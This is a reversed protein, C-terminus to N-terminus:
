RQTGYTPNPAAAYRIATNYHTVQATGNTTTSASFNDISSNHTVPVLSLPDVSPFTSSYSTRASTSSTNSGGSSSSSASSSRTHTSTSAHHIVTSPMKATAPLPFSSLLLDLLNYLSSIAQFLHQFFLFHKSRQIPPHSFAQSYINCKQDLPGRITNTDPSFHRFPVIYM